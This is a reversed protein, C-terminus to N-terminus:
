FRGRSALRAGRCTSARGAGTPREGGADGGRVHADKDGIAAAQLDSNGPLSAFPHVTQRVSAQLITHWAIIKM